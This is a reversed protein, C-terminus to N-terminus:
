EVRKANLFADLDSPCYKVSRHGFKYFPIQPSVGNAEAELRDRKLFNYTLAGCTYEEAQTPTLSPCDRKAESLNATRTM